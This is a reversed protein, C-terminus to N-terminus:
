AHLELYEAASRLAEPRDRFMGLGTNCHKCLIGRLRDTAHCHDLAARNGLDDKCILCKWGQEECMRAFVDETIRFRRRQTTKYKKPTNRPGRALRRGIPCALRGRYRIPTVPGCEMCVGTMTEEDKELMKHVWTAGVM